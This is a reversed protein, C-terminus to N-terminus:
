FSRKITVYAINAYTSPSGKKDTETIMLEPMIILDKTVNYGYAV